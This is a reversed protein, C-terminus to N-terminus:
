SYVPMTRGSTEIRGNQRHSEFLLKLQLARGGYVAVELPTRYDCSTSYSQKFDRSTKTAPLLARTFNIDTGKEILLRAVYRRRNRLAIMLATGQTSSCADINTSYEALAQIIPEEHRAAAEHLVNVIGPRSFNKWRRELIDEDKYEVFTDAGAALLIRLIPESKLSARLASRNGFEGHRQDLDIGKRILLEVSPIHGGEIANTLMTKGERVVRLNAGRELLREVLKENGRSATFLAADM